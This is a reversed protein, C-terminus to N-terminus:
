TTRWGEFRAELRKAAESLLVGTLGLLVMMCYVTPIDFLSSARFLLWSLGENSAFFEAIVVGILGQAVSIRFGALLFPVSAPLSISTFRAFPGAGFANGMELIDPDVNRLGAAVNVIIPFIATVVVVTTRATDGIGAFLIIIPILAIRPISNLAM